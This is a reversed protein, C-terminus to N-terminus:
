AAELQQGLQELTALQARHRELIRAVLAEAEAYGAVSPMSREYLQILNHKDQIVRPMLYNLELYHINTSGMDLACPTPSEGLSNTLEILWALHERQEAVMKKVADAEDTSAWSIFVTSEQLRPLISRQEAHALEDLIRALSRSNM